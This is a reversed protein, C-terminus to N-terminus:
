PKPSGLRRKIRDLEAQTRQLEERIKQLEEDRARDRSEVAARFNAHAARVSDIMTLMGLLVRAEVDHGAGPRALYEDLAARADDATFAPNSPDARLLARWFASEDVGPTGAHEREFAALISDAASFRGSDVAARMAARAAPWPPADPIVPTPIEVVPPPPAPHHCAAGLTVFVIAVRTALATIV